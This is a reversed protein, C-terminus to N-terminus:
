ALDICIGRYFIEKHKVNTMSFYVQFIIIKQQAYHNSKRDSLMLLFVDLINQMHVVPLM